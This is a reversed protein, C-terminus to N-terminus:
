RSGIVKISFSSRSITLIYWWELFLPEIDVTEFTIAQISLCVCLCASVCVIFVNGRGCVCSTFIMLVMNIAIERFTWLGYKSEIVIFKDLESCSPTLVLNNEIITFFCDTCQGNPAWARNIAGRKSGTYSWGQMCVNNTKRLSLGKSPPLGTESFKNTKKKWIWHFHACKRANEHMKRSFVRMKRPFALFHACKWRPFHMCKWRIEM